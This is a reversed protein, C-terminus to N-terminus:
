KRHNKTVADTVSGLGRFLGALPGWDLLWSAKAGREKLPRRSLEGRTLMAAFLLDDDDRRAEGDTRSNAYSLALAAGLKDLRQGASARLFADRGWAWLKGHRDLPAWRQPPTARAAADLAALWVDLEVSLVNEGPIFVSPGTDGSLPPTDGVVDEKSFDIL